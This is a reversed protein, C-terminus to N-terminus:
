EISNCDNKNWPNLSNNTHAMNNTKTCYNFIEYLIQVLFISEKTCRLSETARWQVRGAAMEDGDKRLLSVYAIMNQM